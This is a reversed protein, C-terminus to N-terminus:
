FSPLYQFTPLILLYYQSSLIWLNLFGNMIQYLGIRGNWPQWNGNHQEITFCQNVTPTGEVKVIVTPTIYKPCCNRVSSYPCSRIRMFTDNPTLSPNNWVWGRCYGFNFEWVLQRLNFETLFLSQSPFKCALFKLSHTRLIFVLLLHLFCPQVSLLISSHHLSLLSM